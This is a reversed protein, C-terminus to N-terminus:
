QTKRRRIHCKVFVVPFVFFAKAYRKITYPEKYMRYLFRLNCRDIWEPYYRKGNIAYQHLFGGCSFGAGSFGNEKAKLLFTEQKVIGMGVILIDPNLQNIQAIAELKEKESSFFGNRFGLINMAPFDESIRAVTKELNEETTGLLYVTKGHSSAYNFVEKAMSTMDFSRRTLSKRNVLRIMSVLISGDAFIVDFEDFTHVNKVADLYSVPNLFTCIQKASIIQDLTIGESDIIKNILSCSM